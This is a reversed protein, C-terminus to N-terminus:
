ESDLRRARAVRQANFDIIPQSPTAPLQSLLPALNQLQREFAAENSPQNTIIESM